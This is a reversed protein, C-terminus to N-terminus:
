DRSIQRLEESAPTTGKESFRVCTRILGCGSARMPAVASHFRSVIARQAALSSPSRQTAFPTSRCNGSRCTRQIDFDSRGYASRELECRCPV